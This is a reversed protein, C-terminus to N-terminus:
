YGLVNTGVSYAPVGDPVLNSVLERHRWLPEWCHHDELRSQVKEKVEGPLSNFHKQLMELCWVRYHSSRAKKYEVGDIVAVIKGPNVFLCASGTFGTHIAAGHSSNRYFVCSVHIAIKADPASQTGYGTIIVGDFSIFLICGALENRFRVHHATDHFDILFAFVSQSTFLGKDTM